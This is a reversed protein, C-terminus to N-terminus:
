DFANFIAKLIASLGSWEQIEVLTPDALAAKFKRDFKEQLVGKNLVEGQYQRLAENYRKWQV